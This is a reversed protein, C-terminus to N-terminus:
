DNNKELRLGVETIGNLWEARMGQQISIHYNGNEAFKFAPRWPFHIYYHKGWQRGMWKGEKDAMLCEITDNVTLGSPSTTEIFLWLNSFPYDNTHNLKVLLNYSQNLDPPAISFVAVSDSNWQNQTTAYFAETVKHRDCAVSILFFGICGLGWCRKTKM